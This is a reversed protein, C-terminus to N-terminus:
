NAPGETLTVDSTKELLLQQAATVAQKVDDYRRRDAKVIVTWEILEHGLARYLQDRYHRVEGPTYSQVRNNKTDYKKHCELCLYALEDIAPVKKASRDLHAIQGDTVDTKNWLGFCM